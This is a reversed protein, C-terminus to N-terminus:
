SYDARSILRDWYRLAALRWVKNRLDRGDARSCEHRRAAIMRVCQGYLMNRWDVADDPAHVVYVGCGDIQAAREAALVALEAPVALWYFNSQWEIPKNKWRQKRADARLDGASVKVEVEHTVGTKSVAYIDAESLQLGWSANNVVAFLRPAYWRRVVAIGVNAENPKWM